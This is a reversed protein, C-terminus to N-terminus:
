PPPASLALTAAIARHQSPRSKETVFKTTTWGSGSLIYDLRLWPQFLAAPNRTKGPFTFGYGAGARDHADSLRSTLTRYIAGTDVVNIDGAIITPLPDNDAAKVLNRVATKQNKWFKSYAIRSDGWPTGPLGIMGYIFGGRKVSNVWDRPTPLHAVYLSIHNGHFDIVFRAAAPSNAQSTPTASSTSVPSATIIPYKSLVVFEGVEEIHDFESYATAKRYNNGRHKADQLAIVDPKTQNKFPQLSANNHQGRNYSLITLSRTSESSQATMWRSCEFDMFATLHLISTLAIVIATKKALFACLPFLLALPM